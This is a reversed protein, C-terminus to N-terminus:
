AVLASAGEGTDGQEARVRLCGSELLPEECLSCSLLLEDARRLIVAREGTLLQRGCYDCVLPQETWTPLGQSLLRGLRRQHLESPSVREGQQEGQVANSRPRRAVVSQWMARANM